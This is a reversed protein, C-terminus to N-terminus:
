PTTGEQTPRIPDVVNKPISPIIGGLVIDSHQQSLSWNRCLELSTCTACLLQAGAHRTQVAQTLEGEGPPDFLDSHGVCAADALRVTGALIAALLREAPSENAERKPIRM